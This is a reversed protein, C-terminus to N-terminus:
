EVLVAIRDRTFGAKSALGHLRVWIGTNSDKDAKIAVPAKPRATSEERIIAEAMWPDILRGDHLIDNAATVIFAIPADPAKVATPTSKPMTPVIGSERVFSATVIFFILMIFVIDLMPTMDPKADTRARAYTRAM